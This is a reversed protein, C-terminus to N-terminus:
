HERDASTLTLKDYAVTLCTFSGNSKIGNKVLLALIHYAYIHSDSLFSGCDCLENLIKFLM